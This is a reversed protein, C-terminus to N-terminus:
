ALVLVTTLGVQGAPMCLTSSDTEGHRADSCSCKESRGTRSRVARLLVQAILRLKDNGLVKVTSDNDEPADYIAIEDQTVWVGNRTKRDRANGQSPFMQELGNCLLLLELRDQEL